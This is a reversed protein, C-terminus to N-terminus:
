ATGAAITDTPRPYIKAAVHALARRANCVRVFVVTDPLPREPAREAMIAIAGAALASDVFRLGDTKGGAIAVFLDGSKVARSDATVGACDIDGNGAAIEADSALIARLKM